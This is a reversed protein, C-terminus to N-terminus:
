RKKELLGQLIANKTGAPLKKVAADIPRAAGSAGRVAMKRLENPLELPKVLNIPNLLLKRADEIKSSTEELHSGGWKDIADVISGKDTGPRGRISSIPATESQRAVSRRYKIAEGMEKNLDDVKPHIDAVKGRLVDAAKKATEGRATSGTDFPKSEAYKARADLLQKLRNAKNAPISVSEPPLVKEVGSTLPANTAGVTIESSVQPPIVTGYKRQLTDAYKDLGRSV